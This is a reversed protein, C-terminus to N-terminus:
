NLLFFRNIKEDVSHSHCKVKELIKVLNEMKDPGQGAAAALKQLSVTKEQVLAM